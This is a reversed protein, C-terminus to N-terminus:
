VRDIYVGRLLLTYTYVQQAGSKHMYERYETRARACVSM